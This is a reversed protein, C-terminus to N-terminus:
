GGALAEQMESRRNRTVGNICAQYRRNKRLVQTWNTYTGYFDRLINHWKTPDFPMYFNAFASHPVALARSCGAIDELVSDLVGVVQPTVADAGYMTISPTPWLEHIANIYAQKTTQDLTISM